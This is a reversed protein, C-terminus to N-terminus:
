FFREPKLLTTHAVRRWDDPKMRVLSAVQLATRLSLVRLNIINEQMWDIIMNKEDSSFGKKDLMDTGFVVQKIRIMIARNSHIALDLYMSRSVLAELHPALKDQKAIRRDFDENTIFVVSGEFDFNTPIEEERLVRSDTAWSITRTDGTDLAAKLVNLATMDYYISDLDDLVLVDGANRHNWLTQYLGIPSANGSMFSFNEILGRREAKKLDQELLFTKGVGPAGSVIMARINGDVIGKTMDSLSEFRDLIISSLEEDSIEESTNEIPIMAIDGVDSLYQIDEPNVWVGVRKGSVDLIELKGSRPGHAYSKRYQTILQFTGAINDNRYIGNAIRVQKLM